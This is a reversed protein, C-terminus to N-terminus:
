IQIDGIEERSSVIEQAKARIKQGHKESQLIERAKDTIQKASYDSVNAGRRRIADRVANRAIEMAEREVPDGSRGGTQGFDYSQVFDDIMKQVAKSDVKEANLNGDKDMAGDKQLKEKVDPAIANRICNVYYANLADAENARLKHGEKYPAPVSVQVKQVKATETAANNVPIETAM